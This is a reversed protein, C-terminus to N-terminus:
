ADDNETLAAARKCIDGIEDIARKAKEKAVEDERKYLKHSLIGLTVAASVALSFAVVSCILSPTGNFFLLLCIGAAILGMTFLCAGLVAFFTKKHAYRETKGLDNLASEMYVQILQLEDKHEIAHPRRFAVNLVDDYRDDEARSLVEWGFAGYCDKLRVSSRKKIAAYLYDYREYDRM